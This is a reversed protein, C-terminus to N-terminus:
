VSGGAELNTTEWAHYSIGLPWEMHTNIVSLGAYIPTTINGPTLVTWTTIMLFSTAILDVNVLVSAADVDVTVKVVLGVTVAVATPDATVLVTEKWVVVVTLLVVVLTVVVVAVVVVVM